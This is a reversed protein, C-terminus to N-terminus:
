IHITYKIMDIGKVSKNRKWEQQGEEVLQDGKCKQAPNQLSILKKPKKKRKISVFCSTLEWLMSLKYSFIGSFLFIDTSWCGNAAKLGGHLSLMIKPSFSMSHSLSIILLSFSLFLSLPLSLSFSLFPFLIKPNQSM